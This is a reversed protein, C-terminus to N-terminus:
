LDDRRRLHHGCCASRYDQTIGALLERCGLELVLQNKLPSSIDHGLRMPWLGVLSLAGGQVFGSRLGFLILNLTQNRLTLDGREIYVSPHRWTNTM